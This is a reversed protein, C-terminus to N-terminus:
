AKGGTVFIRAAFGGFMRVVPALPRHDLFRGARPFTLPLADALAVRRMHFGFRDGSQPVIEDADGFLGGGAGLFSVSGVLLAAATPIGFAVVNETGGPMASRLVVPASVVIKVPLDTGDAALLKVFVFVLIRVQADATKFAVVRQSEM